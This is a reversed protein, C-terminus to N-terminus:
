ANDASKGEKTMLAKENELALGQMELQMKTMPDLPLVPRDPDFALTPDDLVSVEDIGLTAAARGAM